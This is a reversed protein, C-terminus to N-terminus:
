PVYQCWTIRDGKGSGIGHQLCVNIIQLLSPNAQLPANKDCRVLSRIPNWLFLSAPTTFAFADLLRYQDGLSILAAGHYTPTQDSVLLCDILPLRHNLLISRSVRDRVFKERMMSIKSLLSVLKTDTVWDNLVLSEIPRSM